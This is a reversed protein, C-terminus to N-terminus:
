AVTIISAVTASGEQGTTINVPVFKVFIKQGVQGTDGFKAVYETLISEGTATAAALTSIQRYDSKVYSKGASMPPTAFVKVATNAPITPAFVVTMAPVAVAATIATLIVNEVSSPLPPTDIAAVGVSGLVNNLRQYLNLGSPNRIDGFIDTRAFNSVAANWANRQAQTLARWGQSFSTFLNRVSTQFPTQANAPTVKTRLYSGARNKSAVHGGIKGRGDVIIAGFKTKM